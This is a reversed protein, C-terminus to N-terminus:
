QLQWIIYVIGILILCLLLTILQLPNKEKRKMGREPNSSKEFDSSEEPTNPEEPNSPKEFVTEAEDLSEVLVTTGKKIRQLEIDIDEKKLLGATKDMMLRRFRSMLIILDNRENWLEQPLNKLLYDLSEEIKEKQILDLVHNKIAKIDKM